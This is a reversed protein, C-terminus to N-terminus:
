APTATAGAVPVSFAECWILLTQTGSVDTGAPLPLNLNGQNGRLAGLNVGGPRERDAGPVLYVVPAPVSSVDFGELRVLHSGDPQQYLVAQGSGRHGALGRLDGSALRVPGTPARPTTAPPAATSPAATAPGTPAPAAAEVPAGIAPAAAAAPAGIDTAGSQAATSPALDPPMITAVTSTPAAVVPFPDDVTKDRFYPWVTVALVAAGAVAVVATRAAAHAVFKRVLLSFGVWAGVLALVKFVSTASSFTGTAIEPRLAVVVAVAALPIGIRAWRAIQATM